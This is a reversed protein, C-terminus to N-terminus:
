RILGKLEDMQRRMVAQTVMQMKEQEIRQAKTDQRRQAALVRRHQIARFKVTEQYHSKLRDVITQHNGCNQASASSAIISALIALRKM